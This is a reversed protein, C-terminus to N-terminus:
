GRARLVSLTEGTNDTNKQVRLLTLARDSIIVGDLGTIGIL